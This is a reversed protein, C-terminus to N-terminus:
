IPQRNPRWFSSMFRREKEADEFNWDRVWGLRLTAGPSPQISSASMRSPPQNCVQAQTQHRDPQPYYRVDMNDVDAPPASEFAVDEQPRDLMERELQTIYERLSQGDQAADKSDQSSGLLPPAQVAWHSPPEYFQLFEAAKNTMEHVPTDRVLPGMSDTSVFYSSTALPLERERIMGLRAAPTQWPSVDHRSLPISELSRDSYEPYQNSQRTDQLTEHETLNQWQNSVAAELREVISLKPSVPREPRVDREESKEDVAIPNDTAQKSSSSGHVDETRLFPQAPAESTLAANSTILVTTLTESADQIRDQATVAPGHVRVEQVRKNPDNEPPDEETAMTGCDQYRVIRIPEDQCTRSFQLYPSNVLQKSTNHEGKSWTKNDEGGPARCRVGTNHFVGTEALAERVDLPTPSRVHPRGQEDPSDSALRSRGTPSERSTAWSLYTTAKSGERVNNRAQDQAMAPHHDNRVVVATHSSPRRRRSIHGPTDPTAGDASPVWAATLMSRDRTDLKNPVSTQLFFASIEQRERDSRKKDAERKRSLPKQPERRPQRLFDM